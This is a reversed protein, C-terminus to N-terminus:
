KSYLEVILQEKIPIQTDQKGPLRVVTGVLEEPKVQLWSPIEREKVTEITDRVNKQVRELARVGITNGVRVFFSPLDVKKGDVTILGHRIRQRADARSHAFGLRFVVNDLRRELLQLLIEGTVGKSRSAV